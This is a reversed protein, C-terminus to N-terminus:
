LQRSAPTESWRRGAASCQKLGSPAYLNKPFWMSYRCHMEATPSYQGSTADGSPRCKAATSSAADRWGRRASGPTTMASRAPVGKLGVQVGARVMMSAYLVRGSVSAAVAEWMKIPSRDGLGVPLDPVEEPPPACVGLEM